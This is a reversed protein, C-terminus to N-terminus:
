QLKILNYNRQYEERPWVPDGDMNYIVVWVKIFTKKVVGVVTKYKDDISSALFKDALKLVPILASNPLTGDVAALFKDAQIGSNCSVMMTDDDQSFKVESTHPQLSFAISCLTMM